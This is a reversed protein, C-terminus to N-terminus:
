GLTLEFANEICDIIGEGSSFDVAIVDFRAPWNELRHRQLFDQAARGIKYQKAPTVAEQPPGFRGTRRTKVEIFCLLKKKRAIIDIEGPRCRYNRAVVTYGKQEMFAVALDEGQKGLSKRGGDRDNTDVM